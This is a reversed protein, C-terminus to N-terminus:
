GHVDLEGGRLVGGVHLLMAHRGGARSVEFDEGIDVIEAEVLRAELELPDDVVHNM